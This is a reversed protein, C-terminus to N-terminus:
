GETNCKRNIPELELARQLLAYACRNCLAMKRNLYKDTACEMTIYTPTKTPMRCLTCTM